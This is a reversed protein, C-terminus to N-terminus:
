IIKDTLGANVPINYSGGMGAKIESFFAPLWIGM